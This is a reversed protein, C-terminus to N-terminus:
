APDYQAQVAVARNLENAYLPWITAPHHHMMIINRQVFFSSLLTFGESIAVGIPRSDDPLSSRAPMVASPLVLSLDGELASLM